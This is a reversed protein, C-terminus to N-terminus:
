SAPLTTEDYGICYKDLFPKDILDETILVWAIAAALAGDTGPRVCVFDAEQLLTDLDCYRANFRDEAEQHRRRAHYLVPMTFGFH